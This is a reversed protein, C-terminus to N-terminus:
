PLVEELDDILRDFVADWGFAPALRGSPRAAQLCSEVQDGPSGDPKLWHVADVDDLREPLAGHPTTLVERGCALAELVSLPFDVASTENSVPFLYLDSAQYYREIEPVFGHHLEVGAATLHGALYEEGGESESAVMVIRHRGDAALDALLDLGRGARLHGVHLVVPRDDTWGLESRVRLREAEPLPRFKGPDVGLDMRVVNWGLERFPEATAESSVILADPEFAAVVQRGWRSLRRRQLGVVAVPSRAALRLWRARYFANATISASPVYIVLDPRCGRASKWLAPTIGARTFRIREATLGAPAEGRCHLVLTEFRRECYRALETLTALAAEDPRRSLEEAVLLVRTAPDRKM